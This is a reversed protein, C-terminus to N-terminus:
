DLPEVNAKRLCVGMRSKVAPNLGIYGLTILVQSVMCVSPLLVKDGVGLRSLTYACTFFLLARPVMSIVVFLRM